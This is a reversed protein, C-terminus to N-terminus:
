ETILIKFFLYIFYLAKVIWTGVITSILAVVIYTFLATYNFKSKM